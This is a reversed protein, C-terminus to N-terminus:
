EVERVLDDWHRPLFQRPLLRHLPPAQSLSSALPSKTFAHLTEVQRLGEITRTARRRSLLNSENYVLMIQTLVKKVKANHADVFTRPIAASSLGKKMGNVFLVMGGPGVHGLSSRSSAFGGVCMTAHQESFPPARIHPVTRAEGLLKRAYRLTTTAAKGPVSDSIIDQVRAESLGSIGALKIYAQAARAAKLRYAKINEEASGQARLEATVPDVAGNADLSM